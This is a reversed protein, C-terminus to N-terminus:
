FGPPKSAESGNCPDYDLDAMDQTAMAQEADQDGRRLAPQRCAHAKEHGHRLLPYPRRLHNADKIGFPLVKPCTPNPTAIRCACRIARYNPHKNVYAHYSDITPQSEWQVTKGPFFDVLHTGTSSPPSERAHLALTAPLLTSLSRLLPFSPISHVVVQLGPLDKYMLMFGDTM